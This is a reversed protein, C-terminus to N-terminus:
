DIYRVEITFSNVHIEIRKKQKIESWRKKFEEMMERWVIISEQNLELIKQKTSRRLQFLRFKRQIVAAKEMLFKLQSYATFAKYRRWFKQICIAGLHNKKPGKFKRGPQTLIEQLQLKNTM